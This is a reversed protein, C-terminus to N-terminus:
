AIERAADALRHLVSTLRLYEYGDGTVTFRGAMALRMFPNDPAEVLELWTAADAGVTFTAGRPSRRAVEIVRGRYVRVHVEDDGSRLGLTGDWSALDDTLDVKDTLAEAWGVTGFARGVPDPGASRAAIMAATTGEQVTEGRENRLAMARTVVGRDGSSTRRARVIAVELTLVDGVRVPRRYAWHTDLLGLVADGHIGLGQLLGMAVAVGFPGQLIADPAAHLPHDDGSVRTFAALDEATVPRPPSTWSEGVAFDEFWRDDM